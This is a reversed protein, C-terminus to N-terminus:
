GYYRAITQLQSILDHGLFLMVMAIGVVPAWRRGAGRVALVIAAGFVPLLPLLYRPEGLSCEHEILDCRYSSFGLMFLVGLVIAGYVALEPLRARLANRHVFLERGCLVAVGAALVLAVNDVWTPFTTDMWGYFGVSRNFWIDRLPFVGRFYPTMGPLHPMFLQWSYSLEKLVTGPSLQGGLQVSGGTAPNSTLANRLLYLAFPAIGICAAIAPSRLAAWRRYRFERIALVALGAFVGLSVGIFNVKSTFGVATVLGLAIALRTDFGRHFALAFCLFVAASVTFLMADPSVIGSSSAFLPQLAVCLAGVTAVWPAGPLVERLFFFTLLATIAALLAGLLRMLQLKVLINSGGLAYPIAALAYYGPPESAVRGAEGHGELSPARNVDATLTKQEANTTLSHEFPTFRVQFYRLGQTVLTLKQSYPEEGSLHAKEPLKGAAALYEVYSYNDIEDKGQFPPTIIGWATANLLAILACIWAARPVRRLAARLDFGLMGPAQDPALTRRSAREQERRRKRQLSRSGTRAKDPRGHPPRAVSM